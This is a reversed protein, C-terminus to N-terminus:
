GLVDRAPVGGEGELHVGTGDGGLGFEALCQRAEGDIYRRGFEM